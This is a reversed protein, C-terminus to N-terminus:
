GLVLMLILQETNGLQSHNLLRWHTGDTGWYINRAELRWMPPLIDYNLPNFPIVQQPILKWLHVTVHTRTRTGHSSHSTEMNAAVWLRHHEDEYIGRTISALHVPLPGLPDFAAVAM